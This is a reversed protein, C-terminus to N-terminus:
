VLEEYVAQMDRCVRAVTFHEAGASANAKYAALLSPDALLRAIAEALREPDRPPVLIGAKGADLMAPIGDVDSAVIACGAHRAEGIVLPGPDAHSALVFIDAAALYRRPDACYGLFIAREGLGLEAALQKYEELMPGEGALYLRAQPFDGAIMAFARLLDAIGKRPHMGGVTLLSPHPLEAAEYTAPLRPSGITGNQVLRIKREPVGRKLMQAYGTRGVTVVRGALGMLWASSDFENHLTTVIRYGLLRYPQLLVSQAAMHVHLIDPRFKRIARLLAVNAGVFGRLSRHPQPVHFTQVGYSTLLELFDGGACAYGVINGQQAQTCALDVSVNVHGNARGCHNLLHMIRLPPAATATAESAAPPATELM